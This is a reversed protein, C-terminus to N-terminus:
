TRDFLYSKGKWSMWQFYIFIAMLLLPYCLELSVWRGLIYDYNSKKTWLEVVQGAHWRYRFHILRSPPRSAGTFSGTGTWQGVVNVICPDGPERLIEGPVFKLERVWGRNRLLFVWKQWLEIGRHTNDDMHITVLPHIYDPAQDRSRLGGLMEIIRSVVEIPSLMAPQATSRTNEGAPSPKPRRM